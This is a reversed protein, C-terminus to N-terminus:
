LGIEPLTGIKKILEKGRVCSSNESKKKVLLPFYESNAKLAEVFETNLSLYLFVFSYM